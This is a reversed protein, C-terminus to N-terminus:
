HCHYLLIVVAIVFLILAYLLFAEPHYFPFKDKCKFHLQEDIWDIQMEGFFRLNTLIHTLIAQESIAVEPLRREIESLQAFQATFDADKDSDKVNNYLQRLTNFMLLLEKGSRNYRELDKSLFDIALAILAVIILSASIIDPVDGTVSKKYISTLQLVGICLVILSILKPIIRYCDYTSFHKKAGFGINYGTQAINKLLSAQTM